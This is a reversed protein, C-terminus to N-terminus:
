NMQVLPKLCSYLFNGILFLFQRRCGHKNASQSPIHLTKSFRGYISGVLNRHMQGLPKQSSYKKFQGILYFFAQPRTAAMDTSPNPRFTCDKYLVMWLHKRGLKLENPQTTEPFILIHFTLPRRVALSPFLECQRQCPSSFFLETISIAEITQFVCISIIWSIYIVIYQMFMLLLCM